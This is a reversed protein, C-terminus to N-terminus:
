FFFTRNRILPIAIVSVPILVFIGVIKWRRYSADKDRITCIGWYFLGFTVIWTIALVALSIIIGTIGTEDDEGSLLNSLSYDWYDSSSVKKSLNYVNVLSFKTALQVVSNYVLMLLAWLKKSSGALYGLREDTEHLYEADRGYSMGVYSALIACSFQIAALIYFEHKAVVEWTQDLISSFSNHYLSLTLFFAFLFYRMCLGLLIYHFSKYKRYHYAFIGVAVAIFLSDFVVNFVNFVWLQFTSLFIPEDLDFALRDAMDQSLNGWVGLYNVGIWLCFLITYLMRKQKM